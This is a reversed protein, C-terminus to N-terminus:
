KKWHWGGQGAGLEFHYKAIGLDTKTCFGSGPVASVTDGSLEFCFKQQNIATPAYRAAEVGSQFWDPMNGSVKSLEEVSKMKHSVGPNDGYGLAIVMVLKSGAPVVAATKGKRYTMAVWCTNLGLRQAELVIKEGYYGCKEELQADKKGVLAIYNKVNNFKGYRAMLGSFAM